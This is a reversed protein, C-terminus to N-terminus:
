AACRSMGAIMRRSASEDGLDDVIRPKRGFHFLVVYSFARWPETSALHSRFRTSARTWEGTKTNFFTLM